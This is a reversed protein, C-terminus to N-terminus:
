FVCIYHSPLWFDDFESQSKKNCKPTVNEITDDSTYYTNFIYIKEFDVIFLFKWLWIPKSFIKLVHILCRVIHYSIDCRFQSAVVFDANLILYRQAQSPLDFFALVEFNKITQAYIAWVLYTTFIAIGIVEAASVVGFPGDVLIPM